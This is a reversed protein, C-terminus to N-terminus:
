VQAPALPREQGEKKRPHWAPRDPQVTERLLLLQWYALAVIWTWRQLSAPNASRHSNLGRHQKLFRFLYEVCVLSGV